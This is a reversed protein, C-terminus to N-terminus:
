RPCADGEEARAPSRTQVARPRGGGVLVAGLWGRPDVTILLGLGPRGTEELHELVRVCDVVGTAGLQWRGAVSTEDIWFAAPAEVVHRALAHASSWPPGASVARIASVEVGQASLLRGVLDGLVARSRGSGPEAFATDAGLLWGYVQAGPAPSELLLVGSTETSEAERGVGAYAAAELCEQEVGVVLVGEADGAALLSQANALADTGSVAGSSLMVATSTLGFFISCFNVFANVAVDYSAMPAVQEPGLAHITGFYRRTEGQNGFASGVVLALERLRERRDPWRRRLVADITAATLISGRNLFRLQKRNQEAFAEIARPALWTPGSGAEVRIARGGVAAGSIAVEPM